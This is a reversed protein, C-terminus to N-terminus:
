IKEEKINDVIDKTLKEIELGKEAAEVEAIRAHTEPNPPVFMSCCDDYPQASIDHTGIKVALNVIDQKDDGCLPRLIPMDVAASVATINDITQSAVQGVSDGTILIKIKLKRALEQAVRLMMRRYLVVRLKAPASMVVKKQFDGFASTFLRGDYQYSNLVEVIRKVNDLSARSTHPYSHFHLFDVIVGRRAMKYAAVPSDFGSSILCLGRGSSGAPLGGAGSIKDFYIFIDKEVIEIFIELEPNKLKVRKERQMQEYIYGGIEKEVQPSHLPFKKDGRKVTVAFNEFQKDKILIIIEKALPEIVDKGLKLSVDSIFVSGYNAIGFIQSLKRAIVEGNIEGGFLVLIRGYLKKIKVDGVETLSRKINTILKKEFYDRNGGKLAIENYHIIFAQRM